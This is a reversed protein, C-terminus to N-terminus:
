INSLLYTDAIPLLPTKIGEDVEFPLQPQVPDLYPMFHSFAYAKSAHGAIGKVIINVTSINTIEVLDPGFVVQKLSGSRTM